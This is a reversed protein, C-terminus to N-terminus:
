DVCIAHKAVGKEIRQYCGFPSNTKACQGKTAMGASVVKNYNLCAGQCDSADSCVKGADAYNITCMYCQAMGQKKLSGGQKQCDLVKKETIKQCLDRQDQYKSLDVSVPVSNDVSVATSPKDVSNQKPQANCASLTLLGTTCLTILITSINLKM